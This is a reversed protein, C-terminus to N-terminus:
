LKNLYFADNYADYRLVPPFNQLVTYYWKKSEHKIVPLGLLRDILKAQWKIGEEYHAYQAILRQCDERTLQTIDNEALKVLPKVVVTLQFKENLHFFLTLLSFRNEFFHEICHKRYFYGETTYNLHGASLNQFIVGKTLRHKRVETEQATHDNEFLHDIGKIMSVSPYQAFINMADELAKDIWEAGPRIWVLLQNHAKKFGELILEDLTSNNALVIYRCNIKHEANLEKITFLDRETCSVLVEVNDGNQLNLSHFTKRISGPNLKTVPIVVTIGSNRKERVPAFHDHIPLITEKFDNNKKEYLGIGNGALNLLINSELPFLENSFSLLPYQGAKSTLIYPNTNAVIKKSGYLDVDYQYQGLSENKQNLCHAMIEFWADYVAFSREFEGFQHAKETLQLPVQFIKKTSANTGDDEFNTTLSLRPFVFYRDTDILYHIFHKKWSHNGWHQIYGPMSDHATLEPHTSFWNRFKQWQDGTWLQGWSSAVQMFYVDTGDDVPKFSYFNSEAVHYHYLSIGAIKADTAYRNAAQVAYNYFYPSVALDDELIIVSGYEPSLDGCALIHQKLGLHVTHQIIRKQGHKWEFSESLQVVAPEDSLDISIILNIDNAPYAASAVSSLLRKLSHVRNYAVIIIAPKHSM